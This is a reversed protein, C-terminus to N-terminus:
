RHSTPLSHISRRDVALAAERVAESLTPHAHVTRAIDEASGGFEMVAVAEGILESAFPGVIHIGRVEDGKRDALVKVFGEQKGMTLARSNARYNFMGSSYETGESQAEEETIGVSAVEPSTYMVKPITLYNVHGAIGAFKEVCVIGEEEAKHALMPDGVLDGIAYIGTVNTQYTDDVQIFGRKEDVLIGLKELGIGQHFPLRGVAVLVRDALIELSKGSSDEANIHVIGKEVTYGKVKTALHLNMGQRKLYMAMFKSVERDMGPLIQPMLEIINVESGLRLWVSGLELGVYGGGIVALKPPISEFSLAETSSVIFEGDFPLFPLQAPISGTALLVRSAKLLVGGGSENKVEVEGQGLLTGTGTYARVGNNKLLLAVGGILQKVVKEKREMMKKLDLGINKVTIGHDAGHAKLHFFLESSELLAKSPICGINLCTGGLSPMKEVLAVKMGLQAARIAAVYGGPGSGIVILDYSESTNEM